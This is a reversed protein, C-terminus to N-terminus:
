AIAARSDITQIPRADTRIHGSPCNTPKRDRALRSGIDHAPYQCRALPPTFHHHRIHCDPTRNPRDGIRQPATRTSACGLRRRHKGLWPWDRLAGPIKKQRSPKTIRIGLRTAGTSARPTTLELTAGRDGRAAASMGHTQMRLGNCMRGCEPRYWARVEAARLSLIGPRPAVGMRDPRRASDALRPSVCTLLASVPFGPHCGGVTRPRPYYPPKLHGTTSELDLEPYRIDLRPRALKM